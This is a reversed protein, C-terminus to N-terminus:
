LAKPVIGRVGRVPLRDREKNFTRSSKERVGIENHTTDEYMRTDKNFEIYGDYVKADHMRSKKLVKVFRITSDDIVGEMGIICTPKRRLETGGAMKDLAVKDSNRGQRNAQHIVAILTVPDRSDKADGMVVSNLAQLIEKCTEWQEMGKVDNLVDIFVFRVDHRYIASLIKDIMDRYEPQHDDYMVVHQSIFDLAQEMEEDSVNWKGNEDQHVQKRLFTEIFKLATQQYQMETGVWVSKIGQSILNFCINSCLTSKGLGTEATLVIFEGPSMGGNLMNDLLKLGTSTKTLSKYTQFFKLTNDKLKAGTVLDKDEIVSALKILESYDKGQDYMDWLDNCQFLSYNLVFCKHKPIINLLKETAEKGADDNDMGIYIKQYKRIIDINEQAYKITTAGPLFVHDRRPDLIHAVCWDIEGEWICLQKVRDRLTHLGGLTLSGKVKICNDKPQGEKYQAYFDRTKVGVLNNNRDYFPFCVVESRFVDGDKDTMTVEMLGLKRTTLKPIGRWGIGDCPVVNKPFGDFKVKPTDVTVHYGCAFCHQHSGYDILNDGENDNGQERCKPCATRKM